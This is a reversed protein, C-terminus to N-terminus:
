ASGGHYGTTGGFVWLSQCLIIGPLWGVTGYKIKVYLQVVEYCRWNRFKVAAGNWLRGSFANVVCEVVKVGGNHQYIIHELAVGVPGAFSDAAKDYVGGCTKSSKNVDACFKSNRAM